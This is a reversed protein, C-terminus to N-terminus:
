LMRVKVALAYNDFHGDSLSLVKINIITGDVSVSRDLVNLYLLYLYFPQDHFDHRGISVM